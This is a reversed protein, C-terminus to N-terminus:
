LHQNHNLFASYSRLGYDVDTLSGSSKKRILYIYLSTFAMFIFVMSLIGSLYFFGPYDANRVGIIVGVMYALYVINDAITDIWQGKKSKTFKLTALEGDTGDLISNLQFLIASVLFPLYGGIAAISAGFLGIVLNFVSFSNASIPTNVLLRSVAKSIPRNFHRSVPGDSSKGLSRMLKREGERADQRSDIDEWMLGDIDMVQALGKDALKQVGDSLSPKTDGCAEKLADFIAPTALFFGTDVANYDSLDKSIKQIKGNEVKVKTADELDFIKGIRYDVALRIGEFEHTDQRLKKVISADFIHDCMCLIFPKTLARGAALVSLGNPKDWQDNILWHINVKFRGIKKITKRVKEAEYGLVVYADTIGAEELSFLTRALLPVGLLKYIPKPVPNVLRMGNGAALVLAQTVTEIKQSL